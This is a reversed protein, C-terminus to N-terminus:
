CILPLKKQKLIANMGVIGQLGGTHIALIKSHEPFYGNHILDFIGFMMKGTYVPDLPINHQEKFQNIFSILQPNIKAYGSRFLV